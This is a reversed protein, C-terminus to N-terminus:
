VTLNKLSKKKTGLLLDWPLDNLHLAHYTM